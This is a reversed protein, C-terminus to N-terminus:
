RRGKLAFHVVFGSVVGGAGGKLVDLLHQKFTKDDHDQHSHETTVDRFIRGDNLQVEYVNKPM